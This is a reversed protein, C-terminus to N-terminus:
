KIQENNDIIDENKKNLLPLYYMGPLIVFFIYWCERGAISKFIGYVIISAFSLILYSWFDNKIIKKENYIFMLIILLFLTFGVLGTVTLKNMWYLHYCDKHYGYGLYNTNYFNGLIPSEKFANVLIPFREVRGSVANEYITGGTQVYVAFEKFKFSVEQMKNFSNSLDYLINIYINKPVILFVSFILGIIIISRFRKEISLFAIIVFILGVLINTFIQMRIIAISILIIITLVIIKKKIFFYKNEKFYYILVPMLGMFAIVTGYTGAGYKNILIRSEEGELTKVFMNRAYMPDIFSTFITMFATIVIFLLTYKTILALGKYDKSINFYTIISIGILIQYYEVPLMTTNWENMSTWVYKLMFWLFLGYVYLMIMLKDILVKPKLFLLSIGWIIVWFHHSGVYSPFRYYVIPLYTTIMLIFIIVRIYIQTKVM